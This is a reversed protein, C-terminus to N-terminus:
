LLRVSELPDCTHEYAELLLEVVEIKALQLMLECELLHATMEGRDLMSSPQDSAATHNLLEAKNLFHSGLKM